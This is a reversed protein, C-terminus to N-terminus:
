STRFLGGFFDKMKYATQFDLLCYQSNTLSLAIGLSVQQTFICWLASVYCWHTVRSKSLRAHIDEWTCIQAISYRCIILVQVHALKNLYLLFTSIRSISYKIVEWFPLVYSDIQFISTCFSFHPKCSKRFFKFCSRILGTELVM